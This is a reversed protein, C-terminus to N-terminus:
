TADSPIERLVHSLWHGLVFSYVKEVERGTPARRGVLDGGEQGGLTESGPPTWLGQWM